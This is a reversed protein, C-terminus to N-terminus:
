IMGNIKMLRILSNIKKYDASGKLSDIKERKGFGFEESLKYANSWRKGNDITAQLCIEEALEPVDKETFPTRDSFLFAIAFADADIEASDELVEMGVANYNYFKDAHYKKQWVHRLEHSLFYLKEANSITRYHVQGTEFDPEPMKQTLLILNSDDLFYAGYFKADPPLEEECFEKQVIVQENSEFICAVSCIKPSQIKLLNEIEKIPSIADMESTTSDGKKMIRNFIKKIM